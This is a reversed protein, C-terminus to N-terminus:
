SRVHQAVHKLGGTPPSQIAAGFLFFKIPGAAPRGLKEATTFRPEIDVPIHQLRNLAKQVEPRVVGMKAILDSAKAHSGEAELTM